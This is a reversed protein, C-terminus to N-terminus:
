KAPPRRLARTPPESVRFLDDPDAFKAAFERLEPDDYVPLYGAGVFLEGDLYVTPSDLEVSIHWMYPYDYGAVEKSGGLHFHFV